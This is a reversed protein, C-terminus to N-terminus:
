NYMYFFQHYNTMYQVTVSYTLASQPHNLVTFVGSDDVTLELKSNCQVNSSVTVSYTLASPPHNLVTFVGSDDV